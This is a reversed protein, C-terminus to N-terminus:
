WLAFFGMESITGPRSKEKLLEKMVRDYICKVCEKEYKPGESGGVTKIENPPQYYEEPTRLWGYDQHSHPIVFAKPFTEGKISRLILGIFFALQYFNM